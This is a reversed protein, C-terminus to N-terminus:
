VSHMVSFTRYINALIFISPMIFYEAYNAKHRARWLYLNNGYRRKLGPYATEHISPM